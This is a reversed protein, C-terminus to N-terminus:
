FMVLHKRIVSTQLTKSSILSCFKEFIHTSSYVLVHICLINHLLNNSCTPFRKRLVGTEPISPSQVCLLPKSHKDTGGACFSRSCRVCSYCFSTGTQKYCGRNMTPGSAAAIELMLAVTLIFFATVSSKTNQHVGPECPALTGYLGSNELVAASSCDANVGYHCM